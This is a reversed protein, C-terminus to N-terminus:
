EFRNGKKMNEVAPIVRLNHHTHLGSVNRGRMPIIHDVHWQGGTQQSIYARTAYFFRIINQDAWPVTRQLRAARRAVVHVRGSVPHNARYRRKAALVREKNLSVWEYYTNLARQKNKEFWQRKYEAYHRKRDDDDKPRYLPPLGLGARYTDSKGRKKISRCEVCSGSDTIRAVVHGSKCPQGTFYRKLGAAKAESRSILQM